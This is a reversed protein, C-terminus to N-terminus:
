KEDRNLRFRTLLGYHDSPLIGEPIPDTFTIETTELQAKAKGHTKFFIYDIREQHGRGGHPVPTTYGPTGPHLLEYTDTMQKRMFKIEESTPDANFDGALLCIDTQRTQEIFQLLDKVQTMRDTAKNKGAELHTCYVDIPAGNFDIVVHAINRFRNEPALWKWNSSLIPHKSLIANGYRKAQDVGDVSAFYCATWGLKGALTQAQNELGPKQLVEQLCIVDAQQRAFEQVMFEQRAPWNEKDHHINLDVLVLTQEAQSLTALACILLILRGAKRSPSIM